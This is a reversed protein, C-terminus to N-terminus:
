VYVMFRPQKTSKKSSQLTAMKEAFTNDYSAWGCARPQGLYRARVRVRVWIM